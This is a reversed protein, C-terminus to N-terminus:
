LWFCWLDFVIIFIVGFINSLIGPIYQILKGKNETKRIMSVSLFVAAAAYVLMCILQFIGFFTNQEQTLAMNADMLLFMAYVAAVSLIRTIQAATIIKSGTYSKRKKIIILILKILLMLVAAAAMVAYIIVMLYETKANNCEIYDGSGTHLVKRGSSDVSFGILTYYIDDNNIVYLDDDIRNMPVGGFVYEDESVQEIPYTNFCSFLKLQGRFYSIASNYNGSINERKTIEKTTFAPNDKENGFVLEIIGSCFIGEGFQNTMVVVGTKTKRDIELVSTCADTAGSHGITDIARQRAFFGHYMAPTKNNQLYDSTSFLLDFTESKQFLPSNDNALAQAYITMDEITGTVAGAPYLNIFSMNTGLSEQIPGNDLNIISYSKMKERQTRVWNNDKHDPMVSTHEMKLPKLIHEHLYDGYSMGSICEIVYGALAAGWNSYAAVEGPRFAQPPESYQLAEDLSMIEDENKTQVILHNQQWGGKHNMLDIMTIPDDYKLKKLFGNPLYTRIDANLDLKGQEYLQMASVWIMTKSVSGWEYVTDKDASVANEKDAYGSCGTYLIKDGCFVSAAFSAYQKGEALRMIESELQNTNLGSPLKQEAAAADIHFISFILMMATVFATFQKIYKNKNSQFDKKTSLLKKKM